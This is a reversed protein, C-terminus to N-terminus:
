QSPTGVTTDAQLWTHCLIYASLCHKDCDLYRNCCYKNQPIYNVLLEPEAVLTLWSCLSQQSWSHLPISPCAIAKLDFRTYMQHCVDCWWKKGDRKRKDQWDATLATQEHCQKHRGKVETHSTFLAWEARNHSMIRLRHLAYNSMRLRRNHNNM